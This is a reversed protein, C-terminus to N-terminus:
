KGRYLVRFNAVQTMVAGSRSVTSFFVTYTGLNDSTEFSFCRSDLNLRTFFSADLKPANEASQPLANNGRANGFGTIVVRHKEKFGVNGEKSEIILVGHQGAPGLRLLKGSDRIVKITKIGSPPLGLFVEPSRTMQGDIIFLPNEPVVARRGSTFVRILHRGKISRYQVAPLIERVLEAMNAFQTYNDPAIIIDAGSLEDEIQAALNKEPKADRSDIVFSKKIKRELQIYDYYASATKGSPVPLVPHASPTDQTDLIISTELHRGKYFASYFVPEEGYIDFVLPVTFLGNSRVVTEYGFFNRELFLLLRTSDPVPTGDQRQLIGRLTLYSSGDGFMEGNAIGPLM